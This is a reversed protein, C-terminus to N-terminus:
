SHPRAYDERDIDWPQYGHGVAAIRQDVGYSGHVGEELEAEGIDDHPVDDIGFDPDSIPCGPGSFPRAYLEAGAEDEACTGDLEDGNLEVDPDGDIEDLREMAREVLRALLPRPLSPIVSLAVSLPETRGNPAHSAM